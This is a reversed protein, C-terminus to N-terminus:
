PSWAMHSGSMGPRDYRFGLRAYWRSLEESSLGPRTRAGGACWEFPSACLAFQRGAHRDLLVEILRRGHGHGRHEPQVYVHEIWLHTDCDITNVRAVIRGKHLLDLYEHGQEPVTVYFTIPMVSTTPVARALCVSSGPEAIIM